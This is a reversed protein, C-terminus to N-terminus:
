VHAACVRNRGESKAEYLAADAEAVLAEWSAAATAPTLGAVGCSLTVMGLPSQEHPISQLAVLEVLRRCLEVAGHESTEPMLLLLEEGGYRYLSDARRLDCRLCRTIQRLVEDGGLHGYHDNYLKFHDVDFMAVTYHRDYRSSVSHIRDLEIELARRNGIGLLGDELSLAELRELAAELEGTREQVMLELQDRHKELDRTYGRLVDTQTIIGVLKGADDVVPLRRFAHTRMVRAAEDLETGGRVTVPDPTMVDRACLGDSGLTALGSGHTVDKVLRVMDRESIVGVPMGGRTVAICSIGADQMIAAVRELATEPTVQRVDRTMLSAITTPM